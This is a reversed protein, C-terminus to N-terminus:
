YIYMHVQFSFVDHQIIHTIRENFSCTLINAIDAIKLGSKQHNLNYFKRPFYCLFITIRISKNCATNREGHKNENLKYKTVQQIYTHLIEYTHADLGLCLIM